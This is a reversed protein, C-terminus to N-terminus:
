AEKCTFAHGTTAAIVSVLGTPCFHPPNEWSKGAALLISRSRPDSRSARGVLEAATAGLQMLPGERGVSGGRGHFLRRTETPAPHLATLLHQHLLAIAASNM